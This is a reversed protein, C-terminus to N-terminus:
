MTYLSLRRYGVQPANHSNVYVTLDNGRAPDAAPHTGCPYFWEAHAGDSGSRAPLDNGPGTRQDPGRVRSPHRVPIASTGAQQVPDPPVVAAWAARLQGSAGWPWRIRRSAEPQDPLHPFLQARDRRIGALFGNESRRGPLHRVLAITLLGADTCAPAPGPRRPILLARTKIADDALCCACASLLAPAPM